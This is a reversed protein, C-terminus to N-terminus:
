QSIRFACIRNRVVQVSLLQTLRDCSISKELPQWIFITLITNPILKKMISLCDGESRELLEDKQLDEHFGFSWVCFM